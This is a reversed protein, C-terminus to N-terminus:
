QLRDTPRGKRFFLSKGGEKWPINTRPLDTLVSPFELNSANFNPTPHPLLLFRDRTPYFIYIEVHSKVKFNLPFFGKKKLIKLTYCKHVVALVIFFFYFIHKTVWAVIVSRRDQGETGNIGLGLSHTSLIYCPFPSLPDKSVGKEFFLSIM